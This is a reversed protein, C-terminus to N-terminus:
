TCTLIFRRDLALRGYARLVQILDLPSRRNAPHTEGVLACSGPRNRRFPNAQPPMATARPRSPYRRHYARIGRSQPREM